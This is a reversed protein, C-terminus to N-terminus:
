QVEWPSGYVRDVATKMVRALERGERCNIRGIAQWVIKTVVYGITNSEPAGEQKEYEKFELCRSIRLAANNRLVVNSHPPKLSDRIQLICIKAAHYLMCATACLYNAIGLERARDSLQATERLQSENLHDWFSWLAHLENLTNEVRALLPKYCEPGVGSALIADREDGLVICDALVGVMRYDLLDVETTCSIPAHKWDERAYISPRSDVLAGVISIICLGRFITATPETIDKPPGRLEIMAELGRQHKLFNDPGTPLFNELQMCTL